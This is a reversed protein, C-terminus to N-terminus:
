MINKTRYGNGCIEVNDSRIMVDLNNIVMKRLECDDVSCLAGKIYHKTLTVIKNVDYEIIQRLLLGTILNRIDEKNNIQKYHKIKCM